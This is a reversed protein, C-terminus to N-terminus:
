AAFDKECSLPNSMFWGLLCCRRSSASGNAKRMAALKITVHGSSGSQVDFFVLIM